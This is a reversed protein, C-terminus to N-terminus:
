TILFVDIQEEWSCECWGLFALALRAETWGLLNSMQASTQDLTRRGSAQLCRDRWSGKAPVAKFTKISRTVCSYKGWSKTSMRGVSTLLHAVNVPFGRLKTQMGDKIEVTSLTLCMRGWACRRRGPTAGVWSTGSEGWQLWWLASQVTPETTFLTVEESKSKCRVSKNM